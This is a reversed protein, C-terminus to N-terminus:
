SRMINRLSRLMHMANSRHPLGLCYNIFFDGLSIFRKSFKKFARNVAQVRAIEVHVDTSEGSRKLALKAGTAGDGVSGGFHPAEYPTFPIGWVGTGLIAFIGLIEFGKM